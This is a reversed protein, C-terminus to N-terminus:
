KLELCEMKLGIAYKDIISLEKSEIKKSLSLSLINIGTMSDEKYKTLDFIAYNDSDSECLISATTGNGFELDLKSKGAEPVGLSALENTKFSNMVFYLFIKNSQLKIEFLVHEDDLQLSHAEFNPKGIKEFFGCELLSTINVADRWNCKNIKELQASFANSNIVEYEPDGFMKTKYLDEAYPRKFKYVKGAPAASLILISDGKVFKTTNSKDDNIVKYESDKLMVAWYPEEFVFHADSQFTANTEIRLKEIVLSLENSIIERAENQSFINSALFLLLFSYKM